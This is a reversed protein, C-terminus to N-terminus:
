QIFTSNRILLCALESGSHIESKMSDGRAFITFDYKSFTKIVPIQEMDEMHVGEAAISLSGVAADMPVRPRTEIDAVKLQKEDDM